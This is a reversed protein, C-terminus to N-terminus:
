SESKIESISIADFGFHQCVVHRVLLDADELFSLFEASHMRRKLTPHPDKTVAHRTERRENSIEYLEPLSHSLACRVHDPLEAERERDNKGPIKKRVVELAKAFLLAKNDTALTMHAVYHLVVLERVVEDATEYANMARLLRPLPFSSAYRRHRSEIRLQAVLKRTAKQLETDVQRANSEWGKSLRPETLEVGFGRSRLPLGTAFAWLIEIREVLDVGRENWTSFDDHMSMLREVVLHYNGLGAAVENDPNTVYQERLSWGEFSATTPVATGRIGFKLEPSQYRLLIDQM